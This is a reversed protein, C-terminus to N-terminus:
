RTRRETFLRLAEGRELMGTGSSEAQARSTYSGVYIDRGAHQFRLEFKGRNLRVQMTVRTTVKM